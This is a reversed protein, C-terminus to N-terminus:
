RVNQALDSRGHAELQSREFQFILQEGLQGLKRNQADRKAPDFKRILRRLPEPESPAKGILEPARHFFLHANESFAPQSVSESIQAYVDHETLYRNIGDLLAGQYNPMPKYGTVWPLGLKLLVASINQHKYEISGRSRGTRQQLVRNTHAKVYPENSLEYKLMEFYDAVILDIEVDTWDTGTPDIAPM